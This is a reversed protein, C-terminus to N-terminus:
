AGAHRPLCDRVYKLPNLKAKYLYLSGQVHLQFLAAAKGSAMHHERLM